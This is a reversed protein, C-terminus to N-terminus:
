GVDPAEVVQIHSAALFIQSLAWLIRELVDVDDVRQFVWAAALEAATYYLDRARRQECFGARKLAITQAKHIRLRFDRERDGAWPAFHEVPDIKGMDVDM